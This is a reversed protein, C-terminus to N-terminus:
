KLLWSAFKTYYILIMDILNNQVFKVNADINVRLTIGLHYFENEKVDTSKRFALLCNTVFSSLRLHKQKGTRRAYEVFWQKYIYHNRSRLFTQLGYPGYDKWMGFIMWNAHCGSNTM